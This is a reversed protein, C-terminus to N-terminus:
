QEVKQTKWGPPHRIIFLILAKLSFYAFIMWFFLIYILFSTFRGKIRSYKMALIFVVLNIIFGLMLIYSLPTLPLNITPISILRSLYSDLGAWYIIRLNRTIVSFINYVIFLLFLITVFRSLVFVPFGFFGFDSYKRNFFFERYKIVNEYGGYQWRLRQKQLSKITDPAKTYAKAETAHLIMRNGLRIRLGMELDETLTNEDFGGLDILEHTRALVCAPVLSFSGISAFLRRFFNGLSYEVTQIHELFSKPDHIDVTPVAAAANDDSLIYEMMIAIADPDISTDADIILVYPTKVKKLGQNVSSAKGSNEKRFYSVRKDKYKCVIKGTNDTSGDDVVLIKLKDGPYDSELIGKITAGITEQENFAPIVVTIGPSDADMLQFDKKKRNLDGMYELFVLLLCITVYLGFFVLAYIVIGTNTLVPTLFM